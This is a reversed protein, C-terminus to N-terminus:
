GGTIWGDFLSSVFLTLTPSGLFTTINAINMVTMVRGCPVDSVCVQNDLSVWAFYMAGVRLLRVTLLRPSNM